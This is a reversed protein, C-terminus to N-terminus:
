RKLWMKQSMKQITLNEEEADYIGMSEAIQDVDAIQDSGSAPEHGLATESDKEELPQTQDHKQQDPLKGLPKVKKGGKVPSQYDVFGKFKPKNM